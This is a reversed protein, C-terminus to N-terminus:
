VPLGMRQNRTTIPDAKTSATILPKFHDGVKVELDKIIPKL